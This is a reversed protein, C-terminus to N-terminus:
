KDRYGSRASRVLQAGTCHNNIFNIDAKNFIPSLPHKAGGKTGLLVLSEAKLTNPFHIFQKSLVSSQKGARTNMAPADGQLAIKTPQSHLFFVKQLHAETGTFNSLVDSAVSATSSETGKFNKVFLVASESIDMSVGLTPHKSTNLADELVAVIKKYISKNMNTILYFVCHKNIDVSNPSASPSTSAAAPPPPCAADISASISSCYSSDVVMMSVQNRADYVGNNAQVMALIGGIMADVDIDCDRYACLLLSRNSSGGQNNLWGYKESVWVLPCNFRVAPLSNHAGPASASAACDEGDDMSETDTTKKGEKADGEFEAMSAPNSCEYIVDVIDRVLSFIAMSMTYQLVNASEDPCLNISQMALVCRTPSLRATYMLNCETVIQYVVSELRTIADKQSKDKDNDVEGDEEPGGSPTSPVSSGTASYTSATNQASSSSSSSSARWSDSKSSSSGYGFTNSNTLLHEFHKESLMATSPEANPGNKEKVDSLRLSLSTDVVGKKGGGGPMKDDACPKPLIQLLHDKFYTWTLILRLKNVVPNALKYVSTTAAAPTTSSSSSSSSDAEDPSIPKDGAGAGAGAGFGRILGSDLGGGGVKSKMKDGKGMVSSVRRATSQVMADYQKMRTLVLGHQFCFKNQKYSSQHAVVQSWHVYLQLMMLPQSLLGGDFHLQSLTILRVIENYEAPDTHILPLAQRYPSKQLSLAAAIIIAEQPVGLLIGNFVLRSLNIGMAMQGTFLGLQTLSTTSDDSSSIMGSEFLLKMSREVNDLDPPEPLEELIPLVGRFGNSSELMVRLSLIVEQVPQRQFESIGHEAFTRYLNEPYLRYIKGARVRGTRGARQTSSDKTIWSEVLMTTHTRQDYKLNKSTGFCIVVDLDPLTISSEAINTAIIIKTENNDADVPQFVLEQQEDSLESHLPIIKYNIVVERGKVVMTPSVSLLAESMEEIDAYGSVFLLVAKGVCEERHTHIISLAVKAQAKFLSQPIAADSAKQGQSGQGRGGPKKRGDSGSRDCINILSSIDKGDKPKSQAMIDHLYSVEVPFRRLGVSLCKITGRVGAVGHFYKQYLETHITASMLVIRINPHKGLLKRCLYCLLDCDVSREHVEDVILHTHNAFKEPHHALYRVLYGTTVFWLSTGAAEDRTDHGMRSGVGDGLEPRLRKMLALAAIRRPQSVMLRVPANNRQGHKVLMLPLRSSKGCGTEGHIISIRNDAIQKLIADEYDDIPLKCDYASSVVPEAKKSGASGKKAKAAAAAAQAPSMKEAKKIALKAPVLMGPGVGKVKKAKPPAESVVIGGHESKPLAASSAVSSSSNQETSSKTADKMKKEKASPKPEKAVENSDKQGKAGAQAQSDVTLRAFSLTVAALQDAGKAGKKNKPTSSPKLYAHLYESVAYFISANFYTNRRPAATSNSDETRSSMINIIQDYYCCTIVDLWVPLHTIGGYRGLQSAVAEGCLPFMEKLIRLENANRDRIETSLASGDTLDLIDCLCADLKSTGNNEVIAVTFALAYLQLPTIDKWSMKVVAPELGPGYTKLIRKANAYGGKTGKGAAAGACAEALVKAHLFAVGGWLSVEAGSTAVKGSSVFQRLEEVEVPLLQLPSVMGETPDAPYRDLSRLEYFDRCFEIIKNIKKNESRLINSGSPLGRAYWSNLWEVISQVKTARLKDWRISPEQFVDAAMDDDMRDGGDEDEDALDSMFMSAPQIHGSFDNGMLVALEVLLKEDVLGLLSAVASRTFVKTSVVQMDNFIVHKLEASEGDLTSSFSGIEILVGGRMAMFDSDTSYCFCVPSPKGENLQACHTAMVQDAEGEDVTTISRVAADLSDGGAVTYERLCERLLDIIYSTPWPLDKDCLSNDPNGTNILRYLLNWSENKKERRSDSTSQKMQRKKGDFYFVLKFKCVELLYGIEKKLLAACEDYSFRFYALKIAENSAAVRTLYQASLVEVVNIVFAVADVLLVSGMPVDGMFQAINSADIKENVLSFLGRVGM